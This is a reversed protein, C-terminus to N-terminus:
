TVINRGFTGRLIFIGGRTPSLTMAAQTERYYLVHDSSEIAMEKIDGAFEGPNIQIQFTVQRGVRTLTATRTLVKNDLAVNGNVPLSQGTGLIINVFPLAGVEGIFLASMRELGADTIAQGIGDTM